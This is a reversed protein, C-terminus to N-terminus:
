QLSNLYSKLEKLYTVYCDSSNYVKGLIRIGGYGSMVFYAVQKANVDKRIKGLAKGKKICDEIMTHWEQVMNIFAANFANNLPAMEQMFNNAPCGYKVQLYPTLLLLEKFLNYIDKVPNTSNALSVAMNKYMGDYMIEKIVALGMEEKNKFHYFFAGKTVKTTAIIEDISTAQYGQMYILDFAKELITRRTAEAKKM